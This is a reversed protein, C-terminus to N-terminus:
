KNPKQIVRQMQRDKQVAWTTRPRTGVKPDAKSAPKTLQDHFKPWNPGKPEQVAVFSLKWVGAATCANMANAIYKHPTEVDGRILIPFESGYRSVRDKVKQQLMATTYEFNNISIRGKRNVDIMLHSPPLEESTITEGHKGDELVITEDQESSMKLTVVFFIILQFVVDIM